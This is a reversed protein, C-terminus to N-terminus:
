QDFDGASFPIGLFVRSVDSYVSTKKNNQDVYNPIRLLVDLKQGAKTRLTYIHSSFTLKRNIKIELITEKNFTDDNHKRLCMCSCKHPNIIM